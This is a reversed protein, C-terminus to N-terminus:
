SLVHFCHMCTCCSVEGYYEPVNSYTAVDLDIFPEEKGDDESNGGNMHQQQQQQSAQIESLYAVDDKVVCRVMTMRKAWRSIRRAWNQLASRQKTWRVVVEDKMAPPLVNLTSPNLFANLDNFQPHQPSSSGLSKSGASPSQTNSLMLSIAGGDATEEEISKDMDSFDDKGIKKTRARANNLVMRAPAEDEDSDSGNRIKTRKGSRADYDPDALKLGGINMRAEKVRNLTIVWDMAKEKTDACIYYKRGAVEITFTCDSNDSPDM